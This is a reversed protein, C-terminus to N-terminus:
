VPIITPRLCPQWEYESVHMSIARAYQGTYLPTQRLHIGSQYWIRIRAMLQVRLEIASTVVICSGPSHSRDQYRRRPPDGAAGNADLKNEAGRLALLCDRQPLHGQFFGRTCGCALALVTHDTNCDVEQSCAAEGPRQECATRGCHKRWRCIRESELCQVATRCRSAGVLAFPPPAYQTLSTFTTYVGDSLHFVVANPPL